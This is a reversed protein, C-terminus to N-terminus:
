HNQALFSQFISDKLKSIVREEGITESLLARNHLIKDESLNMLANRNDERLDEEISFVIIGIRKLYHYFTNSKNLYVKSGLWIMALINGIAQQRYHNMIVIGCRELERNYEELPLFRRLPQLKEAFIEKGKETIYDAYLGSGYSLPLIINRDGSGVKHLLQFAELHNNTLSASNGILIDNGRIMSDANGKMIFELPYYTFPIYKCANTIIQKQKFFNLEEEHIVGLFRIDAAAKRTADVLTIEKNYVIKRILEKFKSKLGKKPKELIISNTLNGLINHELLGYLEGGWLLGIFKNKEKSLLYVTCNIETFGHLIICDFNQAKKVLSRVLGNGFNILEVNKLDKVYTLKNRFRSHPIVFLNCGPFAKEFIYNASDIFKEDSAIHLITFKM